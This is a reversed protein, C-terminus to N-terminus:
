VGSGALVKIINAHLTANDCISVNRQSEHYAQANCTHTSNSTRHHEFARTHDRDLARIRCVAYWRPNAMEKATHLVKYVMSKGLGM